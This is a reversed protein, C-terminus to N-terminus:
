NKLYNFYTIIKRLDKEKKISLKNSNIYENVKDKEANLLDLLVTRNTVLTVNQSKGSSLFFKTKVAKFEPRKASQYGRAPKAKIYSISNQAYLNIAGAIIRQFYGIKPTHNSEFIKKEYVVGKISLQKVPFQNSIEFAFSDKKFEMVDKYANYRLLIGSYLTSDKTIINGKEFRQEFYPSGDVTATIDNEMQKRVVMENYKQVFAPDYLNLSKYLRQASKQGFSNCSSILFIILLYHRTKM